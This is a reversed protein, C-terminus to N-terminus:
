MIKHAEDIMIQVEHPITNFKNRFEMIIDMQSRLKKLLEERQKAEEDIRKLERIETEVIRRNIM